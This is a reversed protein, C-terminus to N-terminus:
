NLLHEANTVHIITNISVHPLRAKRGKSISKRQGQFALWEKSDLELRMQEM